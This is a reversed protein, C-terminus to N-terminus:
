DLRLERVLALTIPRHTRLSHEDLADLVTMLYPLDRRRRLLLYDAIESPLAFGRSAAHARLTEIKEEDSLLHLQFTLGSALRTRLDERLSLAAPALSASALLLGAHETVRQFVRFAASQQADNLVDVDDLAVLDPLEPMAALAELEAATVLASSRAEDRAANAMAQLLHTKGCGHSGWLCICHEHLTGELWGTLARLAQANRGVAFNTLTPPPPPSLKLLLQM